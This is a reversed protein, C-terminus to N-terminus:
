FQAYGGITVFAAWYYPHRYRKDSNFIMARQALTLAQATSISGPKRNRHFNIMLEASADSDVAWLSAVVLPVGKAIFPRSIGIMGEGDYYRGAGSQCASLVVLRTHPLRYNYIEGLELSDAGASSTDKAFVLKSQLPSYENVVAHLAWHIVDANKMESIARSKLAKEGTLPPPASYLRAIEESERKAAPLDALTPFTGRDFRPNGVSALKETTATSRKLANESSKIFITTSPARTVVYEEALYKGTSTSIFAGYPLYNLVKDPVICVQKNSDLAAEAPKILLDYFQRSARKLEEESNPSPDSLLQLYTSVKDHLDKVDIAHEFPQVGSSRSLLWILIKDQLVSYQLVQSQEPIRQSIEVATLPVPTVPESQSKHHSHTRNPQTETTSNLLSRGRSRESLDFAAVPNRNSSYQFDIVADYVNQEADFFVFKNEEEVIKARYNEFLSLTTEIEQAVTPCGGQALCSLLKGKHAAYKFAPYESGYTKLVEDYSEIAKNFDGAQRYIHGFQLSSYAVTDSRSAASENSKALDFALRANKMAEDYNRQSGYIVALGIYSRCIYYPSGAEKAFKLSEKEFLEAADNLGLLHLPTAMLFYSRWAQRPEVYHKGFLALGQGQREVAKSYNGLRTYLISLQDASKMLGNVDGIEEAIKLSRDNNALAASYDDLGAQANAAGSLSQSLLWRYNRAEADGIVEQFTALGRDSQHLLLYSHAIPFRIYLSEVGNGLQDFIAKAKGYYEAAAEAKVQKLNDHGWSMLSRAEALSERQSRTSSQYFQVLDKVFHDNARKVELEAAYALAQLSQKADDLHGNAELDLYRDLLQNEILVGTGDRNLILLQWAAEDDRAAYAKFFSPLLDDKNQSAKPTQSEIQKLHQRAEDTWRSQSDKELYQRWDDAAAQPLGMYERCLARNFLAELLNPNLTLARNLHELSEAFTERSKGDEGNFKYLKGKELIAAALDSHIYADNPNLELAKRFQEVAEDFKKETLYFLGLAHYSEASPQDKEAYLLFREARQRSLADVTMENNGRTNPLPAYDLGSVRAEVPRQLRYATKLALLGQQLDSRYWFVRWVVFGVGVVLILMTAFRLSPTQLLWRWLSLPRTRNSDKLDKKEASQKAEQLTKKAYRALSQAHRVHERRESTTLFHQEFHQREQATLEDKVYEDILDDKVLQFEEFFHDDVLLREEIPALQEEETLEGLLYRRLRNPDIVDQSM